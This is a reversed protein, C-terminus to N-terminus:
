NKTMVAIRNKLVNLRAKEEAYETPYPHVKELKGFDVLINQAKKENRDVLSHYAYLFVQVLPQSKSLTDILQWDKKSFRVSMTHDCFLQLYAQIVRAYVSLLHSIKLQEIEISNLYDKAEDFENKAILHNVKNLFMTLIIPNSMDNQHCELFLQEDIQALSKGDALQKNIALQAYFYASGQSHRAIACINYGDNPVQSGMPILNVLGFFLGMFGLVSFFMNMQPFVLELSYCVLITLFNALGGGLNYLVYPIKGDVVQWHFNFM